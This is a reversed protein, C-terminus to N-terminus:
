LGIGRDVVVELSVGGEVASRSGTSFAQVTMVNALALGAEYIKRSEGHVLGVVRLVVGRLMVPRIMMMMMVDNNLHCSSSDVGVYSSSHARTLLPVPFTVLPIAIATNM